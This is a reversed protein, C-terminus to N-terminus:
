KGLFNQLGRARMRSAETKLRVTLRNSGRQLHALNQARNGRALPLAEDLLARANGAESCRSAFRQAQATAYLLNPNPDIDYALGFERIAADYDKAAYAKLAADLHTQAEPKLKATDARVSAALACVILLALPRPM